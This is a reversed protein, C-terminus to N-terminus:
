LEAFSIIEKNEKVYRIIGKMYDRYNKTSAREMHKCDFVVPYKIISVLNRIYYIKRTPHNFWDTNVARLHINPYDQEMMEMLVQQNSKHSM